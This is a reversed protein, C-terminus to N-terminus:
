GEFNKAWVPALEPKDDVARAIALLKPCAEALKARGPRWRTMVSIYVDIASFRAGLFWPGVAARELQQWLAVRHADTSKRLEDSATTVWRKPDDGYTFTPYLAAVLFVLWRLFATRDADDAAPALGAHPAIEAARLTIAASETLPTGDPLVLTPLQGLPNAALLRDRDPGPASPDIEEREYPIAALTLMAEAIASGWGRAAFLRWKTQKESSSADRM